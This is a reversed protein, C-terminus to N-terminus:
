SGTWNHAFILDFSVEDALTVQFSEYNQECWHRFEQIAKQFSLDDVSWCVGIARSEYIESLEEM